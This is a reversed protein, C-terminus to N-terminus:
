ESTLKLYAERHSLKVLSQGHSWLDLGDGPSRPIVHFHTHFVSQQAAEGNAALINFGAAGLTQRQLNGVHQCTTILGQLDAPSAESLDVSHARPIVLVHGPTAPHIDMIAITSEDQYVFDASVTGASIKCFICDDM